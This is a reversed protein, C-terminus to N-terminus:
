VRTRPMRIVCGKSRRNSRFNIGILESFSVSIKKKKLILHSLCSVKKNIDFLSVYFKKGPRFNRSLKIKKFRCILLLEFNLLNVINLPRHFERSLFQLMKIMKTRVFADNVSPSIKDFLILVWDKILFIEFWELVTFETAVYIFKQSFYAVSAVVQRFIVFM